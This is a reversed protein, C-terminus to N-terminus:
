RTGGLRANDTDLASVVASSLRDVEGRAQRLTRKTSRGAGAPYAAIRAALRRAHDLVGDDAVTDLAIGM